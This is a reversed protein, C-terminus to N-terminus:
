QLYTKEKMNKKKRRRRRRRKKKGNTTASRSEDEFPFSRDTKSNFAVKKDTCVKSASLDCNVLFSFYTLLSLFLSSSVHLLFTLGSLLPFKLRLKVSHTHRKDFSVLFNYSIFNSTHPTTRRISELISVMRSNGHRRFRNFRLCETNRSRTDKRLRARYKPDYVRNM